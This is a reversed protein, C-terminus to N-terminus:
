SAGGQAGTSLSSPLPNLALSTGEPDAAPRSVAAVVPLAATIADLVAGVKADIADIKAQQAPKVFVIKALGALLHLAVGALILDQTSIHHM